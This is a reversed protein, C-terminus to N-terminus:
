DDDHVAKLRPIGCSEAVQLMEALRNVLVFNVGKELLKKITQPSDTCCYNVHIHNQKLKQIMETMEPGPETRLLQIFNCRMKITEAVYDATQKQREMNCIMIKPNVDRAGGAAEVGCALFAQHTRKEKVIVQAVKQGLTRDGKLHVNLWINMPMVALTEELTPIRETAFEPSKWGGADLQRVQAFTLDNITGTGNTTRDVTPDHLIVLHKDKTLRVDFEIMQAGLRVAERFAAITNEPQTEMAGRHACIGREPLQILGNPGANARIFFFFLSLIFIFKKM